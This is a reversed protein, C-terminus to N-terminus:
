ASLSAIYDRKVNRLRKCIREITELEVNFKNALREAGWKLYSPNAKLFASISTKKMVSKKENNIISYL